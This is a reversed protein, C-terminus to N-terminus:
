PQEGRAAADRDVHTCDALALPIHDIAQDAHMFTDKLAAACLENETMCPQRAALCDLDVELAATRSTNRSVVDDDAGARTGADVVGGAELGGLRERVNLEEFEVDDRLVEDDETTAVAADFECLGVAAKPSLDGDDLAM